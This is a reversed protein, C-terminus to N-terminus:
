TQQQTTHHRPLTFSHNETFSTWVFSSATWFLSPSILSAQSSLVSWSSWFSHPPSRPHSSYGLRKTSPTYCFTATDMCIKVVHLQCKSVVVKQTSLCIHKMLSWLQLCMSLVSCTPERKRACVNSIGQSVPRNLTSRISEVV